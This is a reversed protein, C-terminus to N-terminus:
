FHHHRRTSGLHEHEPAGEAASRTDGSSWRQLFGTFATAQSASKVQGAVFWGNCVTVRLESRERPPACRGTPAVEPGFPLMRRARQAALRPRASGPPSSGRGLRQPGRAAGGNGYGENTPNLATPHLTPHPPPPLRRSRPWGRGRSRRLLAASASRARAGRPRARLTRARQTSTASTRRCFRRRTRMRPLRYAYLCFPTCPTFIFLFSNFSFLSFVTPRFPSDTRYAARRSNRAPRPSPPRHTRSRVGMAHQHEAEDLALAREAAVREAAAEVAEAEAAAAAAAAAAGGAAADGAAAAV